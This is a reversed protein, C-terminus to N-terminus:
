SWVSELLAQYQGAVQAPPTLDEASEGPWVRARLATPMPPPTLCRVAVGQNELEQDLMAACQRLAAKGAGYSGWYAKQTLQMDDLTFVVAGRAKILLPLLARTLFVPSNVNVQMEKLWRTAEYQQMPTLGSFAVATHILGHLQGVHTQLREALEAFENPGAGLLDMPYILPEPLGDEILADCLRNLHRPNKDSIVLEAGLASFHRVLAEGLGGCAGTILLTKNKFPPTNESM